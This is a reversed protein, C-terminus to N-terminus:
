NTTAFTSQMTMSVNGYADTVYIDYYYVTNPQLNSLSVNQGTRLTTDSLAVNGSISVSHLLEYESLLSTSYYVVGKALENTSWSVNANTRGSSVSVNAIIPGANDVGSTMGGMQSNIAVMTVPGVRGISDIGNRAQFNSVASKTLSGFYGTVLGQPYITNDQGLFAQLASVDTGSMGLELQRTLTVTQAFATASMLSFIGLAVAIGGTVRALRSITTRHNNM